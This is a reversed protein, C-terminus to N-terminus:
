EVVRSPLQEQAWGLVRPRLCQGMVQQWHAAWGRHPRSAFGLM